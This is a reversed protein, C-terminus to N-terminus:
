EVQGRQLRLLGATHHPDVQYKVAMKEPNARALDAPAAKLMAVIFDTLPFRGTM